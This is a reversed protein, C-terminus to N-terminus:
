SLTSEGGNKAKRIDRSFAWLLIFCLVGGAAGVSSNYLYGEWARPSELSDCFRGAEVTWCIEDTRLSPPLMMQLIRERNYQTRVAYDDCYSSRELREPNRYGMCNYFDYVGNMISIYLAMCFLFVLSPVAIILGMRLPKRQRLYDQAQRSFIPAAIFLGIFAAIMFEM